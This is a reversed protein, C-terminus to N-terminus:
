IIKIFLEEWFVLLFLKKLFLKKIGSTLQKIQDFYNFNKWVAM